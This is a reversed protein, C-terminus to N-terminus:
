LFDAIRNGAVPGLPAQTFDCTQDQGGFAFRAPVVDQYAAGFHRSVTIECIKLVVQPTSQPPNM